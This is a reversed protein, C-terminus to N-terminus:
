DPASLGFDGRWGSPQLLELVDDVTIQGIMHCGDDVVPFVTLNYDTMKRVIEHVDADPNITVPDDGVLEGLTSSETARVIRILPVVGVLCNSEDTVYIVGLSEHPTDDSRVEELADAVTVLRPLALFDPSMLGGATEPNYSLLSRVKRQLEAPLLELVPLRREQDLETIFDVVDDPAMKSLLRAVEVDSRSEVFERQHEPDLEEFVDAELERDQGVAEIIEEGEDHSAAEVLDAIQAPHLRALKRHTLRLRATPVHGVFPEISTWDLIPGAEVNRRLPRPLLRRLVPRTSTDVGVVVWSGDLCALEIENARVLRAGVVNILHRAALDRNLLVEGPRREFRRLSLRDAQLRVRGSEIGAIQDIPVFLERGGIRALAGTIPPYAGDEGLRVILDEIRGLKEGARDLLPSKVVTSLHLVPPAV